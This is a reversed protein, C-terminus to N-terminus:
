RTADAAVFPIATLPLVLAVLTQHQTFTKLDEAVM